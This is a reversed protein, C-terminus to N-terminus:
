GRPRMGQPERAGSTRAMTGGRARRFPPAASVMADLEAAAGDATAREIRAAADAWIAGTSSAFASAQDGNLCERDAVESVAQAWLSALQEAAM